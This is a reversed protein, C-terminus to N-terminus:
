VIFQSISSAFMNAMVDHQRHDYVFIYDGDCDPRSLRVHNEIAVIEWLEHCINNFITDQFNDRTGIIIERNTYNFTAGDREKDWIVSFTYSNIHLKKIKKILM